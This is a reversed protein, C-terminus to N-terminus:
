TWNYDIVRQLGFRLDYKAKGIDEDDCWYNNYEAEGNVTNVIETALTDMLKYNNCLIITNETFEIVNYDEEKKFKDVKFEIGELM